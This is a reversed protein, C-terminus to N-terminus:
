VVETLSKEPGHYWYIEDLPQYKKMINSFDPMKM